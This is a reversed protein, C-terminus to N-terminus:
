KKVQVTLTDIWVLPFNLTELEKRLPQEERILFLVNKRVPKMLTILDRLVQSGNNKLVIMACWAANKVLNASLQMNDFHDLQVVNGFSSELEKGALTLTCKEDGGFTHSLLQELVTDSYAESAM